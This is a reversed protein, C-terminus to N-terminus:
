KKRPDAGIGMRRYKTALRRQQSRADSVGNKLAALGGYWKAKVGRTEWYDGTWWAVNKGYDDVMVMVYGNKRVPSKRKRVPNKRVAKKAPKRRKVVRKKAPAKKKAGSKALNRKRAARAKKLNALMKARSQPM